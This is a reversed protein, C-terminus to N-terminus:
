LHEKSLDAAIFHLSEPISEGCEGIRRRKLAQTAPRDIEFVAVGEAFAPRRLAFSDFGAGIIVYQRTGRAVSDRLADETYRARMIVNTFGSGALLMADLAAEPAMTGAGSDSALKAVALDR